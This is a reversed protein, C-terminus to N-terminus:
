ALAAETAHYAERNGLGPSRSPGLSLAEPGRANGEGDPTRTPAWTRYARDPRSAGAPPASIPRDGKRRRLNSSSHLSFPPIPTTRGAAKGADIFHLGTADIDIIGIENGEGGLSAPKLRVTPCSAAGRATLGFVSFLFCTLAM